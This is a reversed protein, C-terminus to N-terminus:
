TAKLGVLACCLLNFSFRKCATLELNHSTTVVSVRRQVAATNGDGGSKQEGRSRGAHWNSAVEEEEKLWVLRDPCLLSGRWSHQKQFPFGEARSTRGRPQCFNALFVSKSSPNIEGSEASQLKKRKEKSEPHQKSKNMLTSTTHDHGGLQPDRWSTFDNLKIIM